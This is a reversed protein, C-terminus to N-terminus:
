RGAQVEQLIRAVFADHDLVTTAAGGEGDRVVAAGQAEQVVRFAGEGLGVPMRWGLENPASLFLIAREGEDLRPLGPILLGRGAVEGGPMRLETVSSMAGKMPLVTALSYRTEIRGDPLLVSVRDLVEVECVTEARSVLDTLDAEGLVTSSSAELRGTAFLVFPIGLLGALIPVRM